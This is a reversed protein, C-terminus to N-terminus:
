QNYQKNTNKWNQRWGKVTISMSLRAMEADSEAEDPWRSSLSHKDLIASYKYINFYVEVEAEIFGNEM